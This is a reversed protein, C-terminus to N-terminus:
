IYRGTLFNRDPFYAFKKNKPGSVWRGLTRLSGKTKRDFSGGVKPFFVKRSLTVVSSSLINFFTTLFNDILFKFYYCIVVSIRCIYRVINKSCKGFLHRSKNSSGIQQRDHFRCSSRDSVQISFSRFILPFSSFGILKFLPEQLKYRSDSFIEKHEVNQNIM